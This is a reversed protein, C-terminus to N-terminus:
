RRPGRSPRSARRGRRLRDGDRRRGLARRDRRRSRATRTRRGSASRARLHLRVHGRRADLMREDSGGRRRPRRPRSSCPSAARRRARGRQQLLAVRGPRDRLDLRRELRGAIGDVDGLVCVLDAVVRSPPPRISRGRASLGSIKVSGVPRENPSTWRPSSPSAAARWSRRRRRRRETSPRRRLVSSAARRSATAPRASRRRRTAASRRGDRRGGVGGLALRGAEDDERAAGVHPADRVPEADLRRLEAVLRM